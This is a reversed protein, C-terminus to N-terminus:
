PLTTELLVKLQEVPIDRAIVKKDRDLLYIMPMARIDYKKETTGPGGPDYVHIWDLKKSTIYSLWGSKNIDMYVAFIRVGKNRFHEYLAALQDTVPLCAECDPNFFYLITFPAAVGYLDRPAGEPTKLSLNAAKSGVPNLRFRAVREAVTEVFGQDEWLGRDPLIHHEGIFNYIDANWYMPAERFLNYLFLVCHRYVLPHAKSKELVAETRIRVTDPHPFVMQRFYFGLKQDLAPLLVQRPDSFDVRDFYHAVAYRYAHNRRAEERNTVMLPIVPDPIVPERLTQLMLAMLTGPFEKVLKDQMDALGSQQESGSPLAQHTELFRLYGAYAQNEPSGGFSVSLVPRKMDATVTFTQCLTDSIFFPIGPTRSGTLLYMGPALPSTATFLATGRVPFATDAPHLSGGAIRSLYLTDDCNQLQARIQYGPAEQNCRGSFCLVFYCFSVASLMYRTKMSNLIQPQQTLFLLDFSQLIYRKESLCAVPDSDDDHYRSLTTDIKAFHM